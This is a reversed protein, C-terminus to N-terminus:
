TQEDDTGLLFRGHDLLDGRGRESAERLRSTPQHLLRNTLTHALYEMVAEPDEGRALRRRARALVEDRHALGQDRYRRIVPVSELSRRWEQFREVQLEIIEEAQRAADERTRMNDQIVEQLDDVTYLYVDHLNGVEPEIDRPVAIDVMFIPRHKRRRLAREVSGKGLIPLQSATSAVVVDAQQLYDPLAGLDIAQANYRDALQRARERSRNAVIFQRMGQEHLHRATLEITEGAGILLGTYGGLNGFIQRALSVAAFAVSVPNSGIGTQSRVQKSVAFAHQFLRDLVRGLTGAKMAETYAAKTQGGIQPEGLVLSDLGPAVRLLHRVMEADQHIYLYPRVWSPDVCHSEALWHLVTNHSTRDALVTYVETRNCTSLLAAEHVGPRSKLDGLARGMHKGEFVLRERVELPASKHNLGLSLLPMSSGSTEVSM